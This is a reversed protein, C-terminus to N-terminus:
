RPSYVCPSRPVFRPVLIYTHIYGMGEKKKKGKKKEKEERKLPKPKM